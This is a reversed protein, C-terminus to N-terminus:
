LVTNFAKSDSTHTTKSNLKVIVRRIYRNNIKICSTKTDNCSNEEVVAHFVDFKDVEAPFVSNWKQLVQAAGLAYGPTPFTPFHVAVRM